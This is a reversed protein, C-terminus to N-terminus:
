SVYRHLTGEPQATGDGIDNTFERWIRLRRQSRARAGINSVNEPLKALFASRASFVQSRADLITM